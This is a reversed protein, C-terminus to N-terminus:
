RGPGGGSGSGFVPPRKEVFAQVAEKHNETLGCALHRPVERAMAEDLDVRDTDLLNQKMAALAEPSGAALEAALELAFGAPEGSEVVWDLLGWDHATAADIREGLFLARRARAPGALRTLLWTTGYDGSLGVKGFATALVTAACGVRLDCALAFGLGAGAAAGPLAAVTPKAFAYLRGVTARQMAQQNAIREEHPVDTGGGEGGRAAFAKVDGGACFAAGAGTLLLARVDDAAELEALAAALARVMDPSLANRRDPRNLTLVGVGREVHALLDATGTDIERM